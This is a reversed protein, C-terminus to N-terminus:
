LKLRFGIRNLSTSIALDVFTMGGGGHRRDSFHVMWNPVVRRAGSLDNVFIMMFMVFARLADISQLRNSVVGPRDISAADAM